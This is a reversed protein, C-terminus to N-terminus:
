NDSLKSILYRYKGSKESPIEDVFVIEIQDFLHSIYSIFKKIQKENPQNNCVIKWKIQYQKEQVVQFQYIKFRDNWGSENLLHTFFEGHLPRDDKANITEIERGIIRILRPLQRGCNCKEHVLSSLDGNQYNIIPMYYSDLNTIQIKGSEEPVQIEDDNIISLLVHESAIHLGQHHNCEFAISNCEGCGYQDFVGCSFAQNIIKRNSSSLVEASTSVAKPNIIGRYGNNNIFNAFLTTSFVMGHFYDPQFRKIREYYQMLTNINLSYSNLYISNTLLLFLKQKITKISNQPVIPDTWLITKKDGLDVNMWDYFRYFLAWTWTRTNIDKYLKLAAGTTGSTSGQSLNSCHVKSTLKGKGMEKIAIEKTLKPIKQIDKETKIDEPYQSKMKLLDHYYPVNNYAYKILKRFKKIQLKQIESSSYWQTKRLYNLYKIKNTGQVLDILPYIHKNILYKKM